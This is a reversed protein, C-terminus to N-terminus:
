LEILPRPKGRQHRCPNEGAAAVFRKRDIEIV